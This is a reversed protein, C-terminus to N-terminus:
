SEYRRAEQPTMDRASIVRILKERVTFVVFLLRGADTCGLAYYRPEAASHRSDRRVLLPYNFFTQECETQSVDHRDWNKTANGEDWEFGACSRLIDRPKIM